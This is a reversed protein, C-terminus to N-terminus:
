LSDLAKPLLSPRHRALHPRYAVAGPDASREQPDGDPRPTGTGDVPDAMGRNSLQSLADAAEDLSIGTADALEAVTSGGSRVLALHVSRLIGDLTLVEALNREPLAVNVTAVPGISVDGDLFVFDYVHGGTSRDAALLHFHFGAANLDGAEDPFHFGVLTGRLREATFQRESDAIVEALPRYPPQQRAVSRFVVSAFTGDVRVVYCGDPDNLHACVAEEFGAQTLPGNLV